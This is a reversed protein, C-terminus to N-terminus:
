KDARKAMLKLIRTHHVVFIALDMFLHAILTCVIVGTSKLLFGVHFGYWCVIGSYLIMAILLPLHRLVGEVMSSFEGWTFDFYVFRGAALTIFYMILTDYNTDEYIFRIYLLILVVYFSSVLRISAKRSDEIRSLRILFRDLWNTLFVSTIIFALLFVDHYKEWYPTVRQIREDVLYYLSLFLLISTSSFVMEYFSEVYLHAHPLGQESRDKIASTLIIVALIFALGAFSVLFFKGSNTFDFYHEIYGERSM